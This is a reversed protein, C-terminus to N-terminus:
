HGVRQRQGDWFFKRWILCCFRTRDRCSYHAQFLVGWCWLDRGEGTDAGATAVPDSCNERVAAGKADCGRRDIRCPFKGERIVSACEINGVNWKTIETTSHDGGWPQLWARRCNLAKRSRRKGGGRKTGRARAGYRVGDGDKGSLGGEGSGGWLKKAFGLRRLEATGWV